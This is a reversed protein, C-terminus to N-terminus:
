EGGLLMNLLRQKTIMTLGLYPYKAAVFNYPQSPAITFGYPWRYTTFSNSVMANYLTGTRYLSTGWDQGIAGGQGEWIEEFNESLIRPAQETKPRLRERIEAITAM